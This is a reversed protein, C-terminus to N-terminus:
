EPRQLRGIVQEYYRAELRVDHGRLAAARELLFTVRGLAATRQPGDDITGLLQEIARIEAHAELEPPLMGANRLVRYAARLEPPVLADEDLALPRGKGPLDDFEGRAHADAIRQEVISDFPSM